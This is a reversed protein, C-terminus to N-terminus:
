EQVCRVSYGVGDCSGSYYIPSTILADNSMLLYMGNPDSPKMKAASTWYRGSHYDVISGDTTSRYGSCPYFAKTTGDSYQYGNQIFTRYTNEIFSVWPNCKNMLSNLPVRWGAPCPDYISKTLGIFEESERSGFHWPDNYDYISWYSVYFVAPNNTVAAYDVKENKYEVEGKTKFPDKRGFEYYLGIISSDETCNIPDYGNYNTITAGLNRDMIYKGYYAGGEQFSVGQFQHIQGGRTKEPTIAPSYDTIWLHWSWLIEDNDVRKIAVLANRGYSSVVRMYFPENGSFTTKTLGDEDCFSIEADPEGDGGEQWLVVPQWDFNNTLANAAKEGDGNWFTNVRETPVKYYQNSELPIIFSNADDLEKYDKVDIFVDSSVEDWDYISPYFFIEDTNMSLVLNINYKYGYKLEDITYTGGAGDSFNLDSLYKKITNNRHEGNIEYEYSINLYPEREVDGFSYPVVLIPHYNEFNSTTNLELEPNKVINGFTCFENVTYDKTVDWTIVGLPDNKDSCRQEFYGKNRADVLEVSTLKFYDGENQLNRYLRASIAIQSLAHHFALQVGFHESGAVGDNEKKDFVMESFLFDDQQGADPDLVIHSSNGYTVFHYTFHNSNSTYAPSAAMFTLYSKNPWLYHQSTYWINAEDNYSVIDTYIGPSSLNYFYYHLFSDVGIRPDFYPVDHKFAYVIFPVDKPYDTGSIVSKTNIARSMVPTEFSIYNTKTFNTEFKQSCAVLLLSLLIYYKRM